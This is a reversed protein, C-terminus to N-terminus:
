SHRDCCVRISTPIPKDDELTLHSIWEGGSKIVDKNRDTVM